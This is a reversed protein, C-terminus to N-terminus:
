SNDTGNGKRKAQSWITRCRAEYPEDEVRLAAIELHLTVGDPQLTAETTITPLTM